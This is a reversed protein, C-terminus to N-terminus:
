VCSDKESNRGKSDEVGEVEELKDEIASVFTFSVILNLRSNQTKHNTAFKAALAAKDYVVTAEDVIREDVDENKVKNRAVLRPISVKEVFFSSPNNTDKNPIIKITICDEFCCSETLAEEKKTPLV